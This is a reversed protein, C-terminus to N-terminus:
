EDFASLISLTLVLEELKERSFSASNANETVLKQIRKKEKTLFEAGVGREEMAEMYKVYIKASRLESPELPSRILGLSEEVLGEKDNSKLFKKALVDFKELRGPPTRQKSVFEILSSAKRQGEYKLPVLRTGFSRPFWLLTPFGKIDYKTCLEREEDCNVRGVRVWNQDEFFSAWANM